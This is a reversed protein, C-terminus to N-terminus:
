LPNLNVVKLASFTHKSLIEGIAVPTYRRDRTHEWHMRALVDEAGLLEDAPFTRPEGGLLVKNYADVLRGWEPFRNTALPSASAPSPTAAPAPRPPPASFLGWQRRAESWMHRLIAQAVPAEEADVKHTTGAVVIGDRFPRFVKTDVSEWTRWWRWRPQVTSPAHRSIRWCTLALAPRLRWLLSSWCPRLGFGGVGHSPSGPAPKDRFQPFCRLCWAAEAPKDTIRYFARVGYPWSCGKTKWLFRDALGAAPDAAHVRLAKANYIYHEPATGLAAPDPTREPVFNVTLSFDAPSPDRWAEAETRDIDMLAPARGAAAAQAPGVTPGIELTPPALALAPQLVDPAMTLPAAAQIYREVAASSWRGLLQIVPTPVGKSALWSAGAVRPLHGGFLQVPAGTHDVATTQIGAAVLVRRFLIASSKEWTAGTSDPFLPRDRFWLGATKLRDIHRAAAHYPCLPAVAARCACRLQRMTLETQGGTAAKHLPVRLTVTGDAAELDQTRAAAFEIERFM